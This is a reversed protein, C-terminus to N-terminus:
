EIASCYDSFYSISYNNNTDTIAQIENVSRALMDRTAM